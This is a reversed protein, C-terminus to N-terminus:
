ARRARRVLVVVGILLLAAATALGALTAVNFASSEARVETSQGPGPAWVVRGASRTPANTTVKGPLDAAFEVHLAKALDAGFRRQLGEVDLGLDVDALKSALDPDSLGALGSALDVTGTVSTRSKFLTRTRTLRLDRFPGGPGSLEALALNAEQPDAFPKSLRMWTLGDGEKRPGTVTWGANRLDDVKLAAAVDGLQQLADADLGLGASVTGKGDRGVTVGAVLSVQCGSLAVALVAVLAGLRLRM